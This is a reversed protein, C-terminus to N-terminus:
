GGRVEEWGRLWGGARTQQLTLGLLQMALTELAMEQHEPDCQNSVSGQGVLCVGCQSGSAKHTM